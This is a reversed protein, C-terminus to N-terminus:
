LKDIKLDKFYYEKDIDCIPRLVRCPNGVAIVDSPIDKTVISGAGIVSNKGITIGPLIVVNSGIWVNDEIKVPISFQEFNKRLEPHVPHGTVTITVNPAIMVNNGIHVEYDDVIVLNFNAYFNDGIYTNKGYALHMPPEVWVNEGVSGFVNKLIEVRKGDESPRTNNYDYVLEKCRLREEELNEGMDTYLKGNKIKERITM